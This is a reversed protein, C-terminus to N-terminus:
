VLRPGFLSVQPQAKRTPELAYRLSDIVHNNDDELIPLVEETKKDIKYSFTSLENITHECDPHVVIDFDVGCSRASISARRATPMNWFTSAGLRPIM